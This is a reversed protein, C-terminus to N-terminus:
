MLRHYIVELVVVEVVLIIQEQFQKLLQMLHNMVEKVVVALVEQEQLLMQQDVAVVPLIDQVLFQDLLDMVQPQQVLLVM